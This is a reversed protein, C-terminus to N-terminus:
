KHLIVGDATRRSRTFSNESANWVYGMICRRRGWCFITHIPGDHSTKHLSYTIMVYNLFHAKWTWKKKTRLPLNTCIDRYFPVKLIHYRFIDWWLNRETPRHSKRTKYRFCSNFEHTKTGKWFCSKPRNSVELCSTKLHIWLHIDCFM